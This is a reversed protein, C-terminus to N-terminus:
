IRNKDVAVTKGRAKVDDNSRRHGRLTVRTGYISLDTARISTLSILSRRLKKVSSESDLRLFIIPFNPYCNRPSDFSINLFERNNWSLFFLFIMRAVRSYLKSEGCSGNCVDFRSIPDRSAFLSSFAPFYHALCLDTAGATVYRRSWSGVTERRAYVRLTIKASSRHVQGDRFVWAAM